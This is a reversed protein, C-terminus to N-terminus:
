VDSFACLGDESDKCNLLHSESRNSVMICVNNNLGLHLLGETFTTHLSVASKKSLSATLRLYFALEPISLKSLPGVTIEYSLTYKM